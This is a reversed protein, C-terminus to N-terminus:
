LRAGVGATLWIGPGGARGESAGDIRLETSPWSGAARADAGVALWRRPTWILSAGATAAGSWLRDHTGQFGPAGTGNVVLLAAGAGAAVCAHLAAGGWCGLAEVLALEQGIRATGAAASRETTSGLGAAAIRVGLRGALWAFSLAPALTQVSGERLWGVGALLWRERAPRPVIAPPPPAPSAAVPPPPPAEAAPVEALVAKLLDVAKAALVSPRREGGPVILPEVATRQSRAGAVWVEPAAADLFLGMAATVAPRRAEAEVVARPAGAPAPAEDVDFRAARLEGRVRALLEAEVADRPAGRVILVVQREGEARAPGAGLLAVLLAVWARIRSM